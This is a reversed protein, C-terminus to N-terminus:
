LGARRACGGTKGILEHEYKKCFWCFWDKKGKILVLQHPLVTQTQENQRVAPTEGLGGAVEKIAQDKVLPAPVEGLMTNASLATEASAEPEHNLFSVLKLRHRKCASYYGNAWAKDKENTAAKAQMEAQLLEDTFGDIIMQIDM